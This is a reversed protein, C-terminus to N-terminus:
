LGGNGFVPFVIYSLGALHTHLKKKGMHKEEAEYIANGTNPVPSQLNSRCTVEWGGSAGEDSSRM